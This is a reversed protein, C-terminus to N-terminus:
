TLEKLLCENHKIAKSVDNQRTLLKSYEEYNKTNTAEEVLEELLKKGAEIKMKLVEEYTMDKFKKPDIDFLYKTSKVKCDM